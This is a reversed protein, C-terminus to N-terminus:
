AAGGVEMLTKSRHKAITRPAQFRDYTDIRVDMERGAIQQVAAALNGDKDVSVRVDLGIRGGGGGNSEVGLRGGPGRKLPMVAEPGAEGMLGAGRAMPFITPRDIVGGNAFATVNGRSFAAGNAYLGGIATTMGGSFGGGLGGALGGTLSRLLGSIAQDLAMDLLKQSIRDLASLAANAFSHWIGEGDRLGQRFDNFFGRTVDKAFNFADVVKATASEVSSMQAALGTLEAKQAVTLTVGADQAQNLLDQEYRLRNAAEATMGLTERELQQAAIFQRSGRTIEEYRKAMRAAAKSADKDGGPAAFDSLSVQNVKSAAGTSQPVDIDFVDPSKGAFGIKGNALSTGEFFSEIGLATRVELAKKQVADLWGFVTAVPAALKAFNDGLYQVGNALSHLAGALANSIGTTENIKGAAGIMTNQLRVFGQSVTLEAGAVKDELIVSGAEFSRFFAESSIKGEVVLQRLRAVSGGAEKLGMAAAQAIPLAGELISNFEEARVVGSGLAQSLQLLAGSSEAASKGSVRLAVAVKDTFGLLEATSIGLENQVLSARSYLQVLAEIPAVNRQASEFLRDYVTALAAGSLGAVKLSNNIRTSADLFQQGGRALLGGALVGTLSRMFAASAASAVGLSRTAAEARRAAPTMRNLAGTAAVAQSSNVAIGLTAIDM